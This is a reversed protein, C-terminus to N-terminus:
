QLYAGNDPRKRHLLQYSISLKPKFLIPVISGANYLYPKFLILVISGANYLILHHKDSFSVLQHRQQTTM